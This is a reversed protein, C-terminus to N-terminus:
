FNKKVLNVLNKAEKKIQTASLYITQKDSKWAKSKM